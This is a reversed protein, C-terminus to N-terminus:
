AAPALAAPKFHEGAYDLPDKDLRERMFEVLAANHRVLVDELRRSNAIEDAWWDQAHIGLADGAAKRLTAAIVRDRTPEMIGHRLWRRTAEEVVGIWAAAEATTGGLLSLATETRM